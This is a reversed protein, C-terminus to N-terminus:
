AHGHGLRRVLSEVKGETLKGANRPSHNSASWLPQSRGGSGSQDFGRKEGHRESNPRFTSAPYGSETWRTRHYVVQGAHVTVDAYEGSSGPKEAPGRFDVGNNTVFTWDGDIITTKLEWDKLGARGLWVVHTSEGYGRAHALKTLDPSLCEDVLFKM